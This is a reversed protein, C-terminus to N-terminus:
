RDKMIKLFIDLDIKNPDDAGLNELIEDIESIYPRLEDASLFGDANKDLITFIESLEQKNSDIGM